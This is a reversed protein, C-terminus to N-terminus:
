DYRATALRPTWTSDPLAIRFSIRGLVQGTPTEVDVRWRGPPAHQKFTVGRYGNQRGGTVDYRIRDTTMWANQESSFHQWHHVIQTEL